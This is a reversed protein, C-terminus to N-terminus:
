LRAVFLDNDSKDFRESPDTQLISSILSKAEDSVVVHDPFSYDNAQVLVLCNANQIATLQVSM